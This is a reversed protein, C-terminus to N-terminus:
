RPSNEVQTKLGGIAQGNDAPTASEAPTYRNVQNTSVDAIPDTTISEISGGGSSTVVQISAKGYAHDVSTALGRMGAVALLSILLLLLGYESLNEGEEEPWLRKLLQMM